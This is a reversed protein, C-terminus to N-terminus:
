ELKAGVKAQLFTADSNTISDNNREDQWRAGEM